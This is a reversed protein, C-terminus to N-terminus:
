DAAGFWADIRALFDAAVPSWLSGWESAAERASPVYPAVEDWTVVPQGYQDAALARRVPEPLVDFMEKWHAQALEYAAAAAAHGNAVRAYEARQVPDDARRPWRIAEDM